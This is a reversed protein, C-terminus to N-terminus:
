DERILKSTRDIRGVESTLEPSDRLFGVQGSDGEVLKAVRVRREHELLTHMRLDNAFPETVATDCDGQVDVAM